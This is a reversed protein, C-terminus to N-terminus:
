NGDEKEPQEPPNTKEGARKVGGHVHNMLSVTGATVDVNSHIRGTATIEGTVRLDGEIHLDGHHITEDGTPIEIAKQEPNIGVLAFSDSYDHIRADLPTEFDQGVYWNDFCRETVLLLCYDGVKIPHALYNGGGQLFIPPVFKFIPLDIKKRNVLSSIVPKVDITKRDDAVAVVRAPLITHTNRLERTITNLIADYLGHEHNLM